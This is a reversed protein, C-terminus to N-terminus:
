KIKEKLIKAVIAKRKDANSVLAGTYGNEALYALVKKVPQKCIEIIQKEVRAEEFTLGHSESLTHISHCPVCLVRLNSSNCFLNETFSSIDEVKLISGAPKPHHDVVVDKATFWCSCIKCFYEWKQRPNSGKYPRRAAILANTRPIWRLSKSRLTSRVFALYAAETMTGDCRTLPAKPAKKTAV